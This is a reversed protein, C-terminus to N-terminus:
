NGRQMTVKQARDAGSQGQVASDSPRALINTQLMCCRHLVANKQTTRTANGMHSSLHLQHCMM